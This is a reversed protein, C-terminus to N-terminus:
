AYATSVIRHASWLATALPLAFSLVWTSGVLCFYRMYMWIVAIYLCVIQRKWSEHYICKAVSYLWLQYSYSIYKMDHKHHKERNPWSVITYDRHKTICKALICRIHQKLWEYIFYILGIYQYIFIQYWMQNRILYEWSKDGNYHGVFYVRPGPGM